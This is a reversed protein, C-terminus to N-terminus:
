FGRYCACSAPLPRSTGHERKHGLPGRVLQCLTFCGTYSVRGSGTYGSRERRRSLLLAQWLAGSRSSFLLGWFSGERQHSPNRAASPSPPPKTAPCREGSQPAPSAVLCEIRGAFNRVIQQRRVGIRQSPAATGGESRVGGAPGLV